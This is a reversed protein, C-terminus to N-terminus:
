IEVSSKATVGILRNLLDPSANLTESSGDYAAHGREMVITRKTSHKM